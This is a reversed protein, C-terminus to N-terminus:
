LNHAEKFIEEIKDTSTIRENCKRSDLCINFGISKYNDIGGKTKCLSSVYVVPDKDDGRNNCLACSCNTNLDTLRCTMGLLKNNMKYAILMKQTGEDIWGLYVKKSDLLEQSPLKLKKEKKFLKSIQPNTIADMGYTYQDLKKIYADIYLPDDIKTIDLLGKQEPSLNEFRNLIKDQIYSRNVNVINPDTCNRLTSNLDNMCQVIYNFDHKKIFAEM